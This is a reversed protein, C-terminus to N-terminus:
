PALGFRDVPEYRAGGPHLRSRFLVVEDIHFPEFGAPGGAPLVGDLRVPTRFRAVTLHATFPRAEPAFGHPELATDLDGALAPLRRQPDDLGVWLVRARRLSPFGGLGDLRATLPAHRVAVGGIAHTVEGVREPPTWGLFKLTVHQNDPPVWRADWSDRRWRAAHEALRLRQELPVEVAAFLRLREGTV